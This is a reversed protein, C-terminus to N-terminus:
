KTLGINRIKLKYYDDIEIGIWGYITDTPQLIRYALYLDPANWLNNEKEPWGNWEPTYSSLYQGLITGKQFNIEKDILNNLQLPEWCIEIPRNANQFPFYSIECGMSPSSYAILHERGYFSTFKLDNMGDLNLDILLEGSYENTPGAASAVNTLSIELDPNFDKITVESSAQGALIYQARNRQEEDKQCGALLIISIVIVGVLKILNM